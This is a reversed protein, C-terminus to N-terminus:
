NFFRRMRDALEEPLTDIVWVGYGREMPGTDSIYVGKPYPRSFLKIHLSYYNLKKDLPGSYTLLNFSGIGMKKYGRLVKLLNNAFEDMEKESLDAM